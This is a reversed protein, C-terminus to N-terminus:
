SRFNKKCSGDTYAFGVHVLKSSPQHPGPGWKPSSGIGKISPVARGTQGAQRGQWAKGQGAASGLTARGQKIKGQRTASLDRQQTKPLELM